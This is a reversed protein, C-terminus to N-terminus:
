DGGQHRGYGGALYAFNKVLQQWGDIIAYPLYGASYQTLGVGRAVTDYAERTDPLEALTPGGVARGQDDLNIWHGSNRELDQTIGAERWRDPERSLEGITFPV